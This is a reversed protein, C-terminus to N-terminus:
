GCHWLTQVVGHACTDGGHIPSPAPQRCMKNPHRSTCPISLHKRQHATQSAKCHSAKRMPHRAAGPVKGPPECFQPTSGLLVNNNRDNVWGGAHHGTAASPRSSGPGVLQGHERGAQLPQMEGQMRIRVTHPMHRLAVLRGRSHHMMSDSVPRRSHESNEPASASPDFIYTHRGRPLVGVSAQVVRRSTVTSSSTQRDAVPEHIMFQTFGMRSAEMLVYWAVRRSRARATVPAM